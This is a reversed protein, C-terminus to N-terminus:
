LSLQTKWEEKRHDSVNRWGEMWVGRELRKGRGEEARGAGSEETVECATRYM